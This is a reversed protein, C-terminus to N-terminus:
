LKFDVANDAANLTQKRLTQKRLHLEVRLLYQNTTTAPIGTDSLNM